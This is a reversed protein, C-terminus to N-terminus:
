KDGGGGEERAKKGASSHRIEHDHDAKMFKGLSRPELAAKYRSHCYSTFINILM